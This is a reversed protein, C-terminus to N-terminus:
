CCVGFLGFGVVIFIFVGIVIFVVFFNDVFDGLKYFSVIVMNLVLKVEDIVIKVNVKM